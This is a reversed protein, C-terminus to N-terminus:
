AFLNSPSPRSLSLRFPRHSCNGVIDRGCEQPTRSGGSRSRAPSAASLTRPRLMCPLPTTSTLLSAPFIHADGLSGRSGAFESHEAGKRREICKTRVRRWCFTPSNTWSLYSGRRLKWTGGKTSDSASSYCSMASEYCSYRRRDDHTFRTFSPPEARAIVPSRNLRECNYRASKGLRLYKEGAKRTFRVKRAGARISRCCSSRM